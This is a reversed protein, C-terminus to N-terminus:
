VEDELIPVERWEAQLLGACALQQRKKHQHHAILLTTLAQKKDDADDAVRLTLGTSTILMDVDMQSADIDSREVWEHLTAHGGEAFLRAKRPRRASPRWSPGSSRLM